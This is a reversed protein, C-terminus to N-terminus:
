IIGALFSKASFNLLNFFDHLIWSKGCFHKLPSQVLLRRPAFTVGKVERGDFKSLLNTSFNLIYLSIRDLRWIAELPWFVNGFKWEFAYRYHKEYILTKSGMNWFYTNGVGKAQFVLTWLLSSDIVFTSLILPISNLCCTSIIIAPKTITDTASLSVYKYIFVTKM